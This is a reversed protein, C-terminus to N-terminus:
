EYYVRWSGAPCESELEDEFFIFTGGFFSFLRWEGPGPVYIEDQVRGGAVYERRASYERESTLAWGIQERVEENERWVKGFGRIPQRVTSDFFTSESTTNPSPDFTPLQEVDGEEFTDEFCYWEGSTPDTGDGLAVWITHNERFWFMRGGEFVQEVVITQDIRPTPFLGPLPTDTPMPINTATATPIVDGVAVGDGALSGEELIASEMVAVRTSLANNQAEATRLAALMNVDPTATVIVTEPEPNSTEDDSDCATLLALPLLAGLM